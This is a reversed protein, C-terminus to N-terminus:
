PVRLGDCEGSTDYAPTGTAGITKSRVHELNRESKLFALRRAQREEATMMGFMQLRCWHYERLAKMEQPSM